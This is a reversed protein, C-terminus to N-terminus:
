WLGRWALVVLMMLGSSLFLIDDARRMHKDELPMTNRGLTPKVVVQGNYVAPGGLQVGLAGALAAEPRGANPSAHRGGETLWTRVAGRADLGLILAALAILAASIRAPILNALDDTRAAAWGLDRCQEDKYGIMSDLTSVAKYAMALAPGGLALYFLPGIVGDSLNEAMTELLARIIGPRDLNRTERGVVLGLLRRARPLDNERLALAVRWTEDHLSRAALTTYALFVGVALGLDPFIRDAGAMLLFALVWSLGVVIIVIVVGALRLQLPKQFLKRVLDSLRSILSGMLRVPHPWGPPDGLALDLLFALGLFFGNM